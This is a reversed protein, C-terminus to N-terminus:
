LTNMGTRLIKKMSIMSKYTKPYNILSIVKRKSSSLIIVLILLKIELRIILFRVIQNYKDAVLNEHNFSSDNINGAFDDIKLDLSLQLYNFKESTNLDKDQNKNIDFMIKNLQNNLIKNIFFGLFDVADNEQLCGNGRNLFLMQKEIEKLFKFYFKELKSLSSLYNQIKKRYRILRYFYLFIRFSKSKILEFHKKLFQVCEFPIINILM